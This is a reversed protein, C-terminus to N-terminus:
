KENQKKKYQEFWDKMGNYIKSYDKNDKLEVSHLSNILINMVEEESFKNKDQEQQWKAGDIFGLEDGYTSNPITNRYTKAAQEITEKKPEGVHTIDIGRELEQLPESLAYIIKYISTLKEEDWVLRQDVYECSPNKVFWELFEDDIPQVGAILETDTTLIIEKIHNYNWINQQNVWNIEILKSAGKYFNNKSTLKGINNNQIDIVYIEKTLNEEKIEEDNTIYINQPKYGASSIFWDMAITSNPDKYSTGNYYLRSPNDTPILHINKM